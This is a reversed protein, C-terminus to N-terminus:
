HVREEDNNKEVKPIGNDRENGGKRSEPSGDDTNSTSEVKTKNEVNPEDPYEARLKESFTLEKKAEIAKATEEVKNNTAQQDIDTNKGKGWNSFISM